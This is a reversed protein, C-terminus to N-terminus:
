VQITVSADIIWSKQQFLTSIASNLAFYRTLCRFGRYESKTIDRTLWDGKSSGVIQDGRQTIPRM